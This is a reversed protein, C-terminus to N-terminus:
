GSKAFMGCLVYSLLFVANCHRNHFWLPNKVLRISYRRNALNKLKQTYRVHFKNFREEQTDLSTLGIRLHLVIDGATQSMDLLKPFSQVPDFM